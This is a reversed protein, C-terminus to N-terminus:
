YGLRRSVTDAIKIIIEAYEPIKEEAVRDVPGSIGISAVVKGSFDYINAAVCRMGLTTEEDDVAYRRANDAKAVALLRETDTVTNVTHATLEAGELLRRQEEEPLASLMAKGHATCHLEERDGVQLNVGLHHPASLCDILYVEDGKRVSLGSAEGTLRTLEELYPHAVARIDYSDLVRERFKCLKLGLSYKGNEAVQEVYGHEELTKLLRYASSKNVGLLKGLETVGLRGHEHILDIIALGRALSNITQVQKDM